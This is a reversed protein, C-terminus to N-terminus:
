SWNAANSLVNALFCADDVAWELPKSRAGERHVIVAGAIPNISVIKDLRIRQSDKGALYYIHRNTVALPGVGLPHRVEHEVRTGKVAGVRWYVGKAIRISAGQSGGVFEAKTKHEYVPVRPWSWVVVEGKQLLFPLGEATVRPHVEGELLDRVLAAKLLQERVKEPILGSKLKCADCLGIIAAEEERTLVGDDLAKELVAPLASIVRSVISRGGPTATEELAKHAAEPGKTFLVDTLLTADRSLGPTPPTVPVAAKKPPEKTKLLCRYAIYGFLLACLVYEVRHQKLAQGAASVALLACAGGLIGKLAM